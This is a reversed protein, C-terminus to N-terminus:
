FIHLTGHGNTLRGGKVPIANKNNRLTTAQLWLAQSNNTTNTMFRIGSNAPDVIAVRDLQMRGPAVGTMAVGDIPNNIELGTATLSEVRSNVNGNHLLGIGDNNSSSETVNVTGLGGGAEINFGHRGQFSHANQFLVRTSPTGGYVGYSQGYMFGYVVSNLEEFDDVWHSVVGTAGRGGDSQVTWCSDRRVVGCRLYQAAFTEAVVGAISTTTVGVSNLVHTKYHDVRGVGQCRLTDSVWAQGTAPKPYAAANGDVTVNEIRSTACKDWLLVSTWGQGPAPLPMGAARRITCNGDGILAVPKLNATGVKHSKNTDIVGVVDVYIDTNKARAEKLAAEIAAANQVPSESPSAGHSLLSVPMAM